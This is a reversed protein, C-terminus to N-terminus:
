IVSGIFRAKKGYIELLRPWQVLFVSSIPYVLKGTLTPTSIRCWSELYITHKRFLWAVFFAPITVESGTSFVLDPKEKLFIGIMKVFAISMKVPNTKINPVFRTPYPLKRTRETEYTIFFITHGEFADILTLMETLHGGHSCVLGIKM